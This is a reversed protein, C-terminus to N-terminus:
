NTMEVAGGEKYLEATELPNPMIKASPRKSDMNTKIQM